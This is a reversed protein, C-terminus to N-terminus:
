HATIQNAKRGLEYKGKSVEIWVADVGKMASEISKAISYDSAGHNKDRLRKAEKVFENDPMGGIFRHVLHSVEGYNIEQKTTDHIAIPTTMSQYNMESAEVTSIIKM